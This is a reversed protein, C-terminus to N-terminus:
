PAPEPLLLTDLPLLVEEPGVELPITAAGNHRPSSIVADIIGDRLPALEFWGSEDTTTSLEPQNDGLASVRAGPLPKDGSFVFGSLTANSNRLILPKLERREQDTLGPVIGARASLGDNEEPCEVRYPTDAQLGAFTITGDIGTRERRVLTTEDDGSRLVYLEITRGGVPRGYSDIVRATILPPGQEIVPLEAVNDTSGMPGRLAADEIASQPTRNGALFASLRLASDPTADAVGERLRRQSLIAPLRRVLTQREVATMKAPDARYLQFFLFVRGGTPRGSKMISGVRFEDDALVVYERTLTGSTLVEASASGAANTTLSVETGDEGTALFDVGELPMGDLSLASVVMTRMTPEARLAAVPLMAALILLTFVRLAM